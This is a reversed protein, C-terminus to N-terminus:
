LLRYLFIDLAKTKMSHLTQGHSSVLSYIFQLGLFVAVLVLLAIVAIITVIMCGYEVM